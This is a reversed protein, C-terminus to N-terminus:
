SAIEMDHAGRCRSAVDLLWRAFEPPTAEREKKSVEPRWDPHGKRKRSGDVLTRAQAIVHTAEGM